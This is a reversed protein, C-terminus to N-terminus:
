KKHGGIQKNREFYTSEDLLSTGLFVKDKGYKDQLYELTITANRLKIDNNEDNFLSYQIKTREVLCSYSIYLKRIPLDKVNKNFIDLLVAFIRENIDTYNLLKQQKTFGPSVKQKFSYIVTLSVQGTLYNAKHLRECLSNTMEELLIKAQEVTYDKYLSQGLSLSKSITKYKNQILSYDNGNVLDHLEIGAQGLNLRLYNIDAKALEEVTNIGMRELRTKYGVNIGWISDLDKIKWLKNKVDDRTWTCRFPPKKKAENDLAVKAMFINYSIGATTVLHTKEYIKDQIEKVIEEPKKNYFKLYPTLDFFCEDISYIHMDEEAVYDLVISFVENSKKLYLGMRPTAYIMNKVYPLDKRRCVNKAGQSKMYPTCSLVITNAGRETDCVVLPTTFIDLGREVCEVSAYFSKLDLAVIVRDDM